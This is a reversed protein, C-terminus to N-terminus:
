RRPILDFRALVDTAVLALLGIGALELIPRFRPAVKWNNRHGKSVTTGVGTITAELLTAAVAFGVFDLCAIEGISM